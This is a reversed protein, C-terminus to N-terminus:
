AAKPADAFTGGEPPLVVGGRRTSKRTEVKEEYSLLNEFDKKSLEGRPTGPFSATLDVELGFMDLLQSSVDESTVRSDLKKPDGGFSSFCYNVDSSNTTKSAESSKLYLNLFERLQIKGDKNDDVADILEQLEKETPSQGLQHMMKMLEDADISGSGDADLEFFVKRARNYERTELRRPPAWKESVVFDKTLRRSRGSPRKPVESSRRMERTSKSDTSKRDDRTKRASMSGEMASSDACRTLRADSALAANRM